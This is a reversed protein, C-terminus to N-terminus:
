WSDAVSRSCTRFSLSPFDWSRPSRPHTSTSASATRSDRERARSRRSLVCPPDSGGGDHGVERRGRCRHARHGGCDAGTRAVRSDLLLRPQRRPAREPPDARSARVVVAAPGRGAPARLRVVAFVRRCRVTPARRLSRRRCGADTPRDGGGGRALPLSVHPRRRVVLAAENTIFRPMTRWGNRGLRPDLDCPAQGALSDSGLAYLELAPHHLVRDLTEQGAYGSAGVIAVTAM